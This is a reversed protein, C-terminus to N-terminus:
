VQKTLHVLLGVVGKPANDEEKDKATQLITRARTFPFTLLIAVARALAGLLFANLASLSAGGVFALCDFVFSFHFHFLFLFFNSLGKM